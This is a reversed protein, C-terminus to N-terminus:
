SVVSVGVGQTEVTRGRGWDNLDGSEARKGDGFGERQVVDYEGATDLKLLGSSDNESDV